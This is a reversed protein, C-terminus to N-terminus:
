DTPFVRQAQEHAATTAYTRNPSHLGRAAGIQATEGSTPPALQPNINLLAASTFAAGGCV